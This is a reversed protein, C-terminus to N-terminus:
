TMGSKTLYITQLSVAESTVNLYKEVQDLFLQVNNKQLYCYHAILSNEGM